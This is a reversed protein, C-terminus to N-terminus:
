SLEIDVVKGEVDITHIELHPKKNKPTETVQGAVQAEIGFQKMTAIIKDAEEPTRVTILMGQGNCWTTYMTELSM